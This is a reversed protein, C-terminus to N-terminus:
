TYQVRTRSYLVSKFVLLVKLPCLKRFFLKKLFTDKDCICSIEYQLGNNQIKGCCKNMGDLIQSQEANM